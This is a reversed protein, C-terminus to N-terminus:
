RGRVHQQFWAAIRQPDTEVRRVPAQGPRQLWIPSPLAAKRGCMLLAQARGWADVRDLIHALIEVHDPWGDEGHTASDAPLGNM